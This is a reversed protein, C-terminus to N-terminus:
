GFPQLNLNQWPSLKRPYLTSLPYAPSRFVSQLVWNRDRGPPSIYPLVLNFDLIKLALLLGLDTTLIEIASVRPRTHARLSCVVRGM